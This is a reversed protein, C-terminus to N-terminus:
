GTVVWINIGYLLVSQALAKYIAGQARVMAGMREVVRALM